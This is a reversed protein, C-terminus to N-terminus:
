VGTAGNITRGHCNEPKKWRQKAICVLSYVADKCVAKHGPIDPPGHYSGCLLARNSFRRDPM